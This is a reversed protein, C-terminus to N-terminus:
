LASGELPLHQTLSVGLLCWGSNVKLINMEGSEQARGGGWYLLKLILHGRNVSVLAAEPSALAVAM